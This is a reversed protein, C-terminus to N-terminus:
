ESKLEEMKKYVDSEKIRLLNGFKYLTFHEAVTQQSTDFMGAVQALTYYRDQMDGCNLIRASSGNLRKGLLRKQKTYIAPHTM